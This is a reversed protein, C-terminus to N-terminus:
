ERSQDPQRYPMAQVGRESAFNKARAIADQISVTGSNTPKISSLDLSGSNTPQPLSFPAAGSVNAQQQALLGQLAALPNVSAQQGPPAQLGALLNPGPSQTPLRQQNQQAIKM